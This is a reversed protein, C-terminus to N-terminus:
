HGVNDLFCLGGCFPCYHWLFWFVQYFTECNKVISRLHTAQFKEMNLVFTKQIKCLNKWTKKSAKTPSTQGTSLCIVFSPCAPLPPLFDRPNRFFYKTSCMQLVKSSASRAWPMSVMAPTIIPQLNPWLVAGSADNVFKTVLYGCKCKNDVDALTM